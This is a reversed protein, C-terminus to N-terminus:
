GSHQPSGRPISKNGRYENNRIQDVKFSQEGQKINDVEKKTLELARAKEVMREYSMDQAIIEAQLKPSKTHLLVALKIADKLTMRDWECDKGM